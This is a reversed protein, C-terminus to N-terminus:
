DFHDWGHGAIPELHGGRDLRVGEDVAVFGGIARVEIAAESALARFADVNAAAVACLLEYDDGGGLVLAAADLDLLSSASDLVPDATLDEVDLRAGVVSATCLRHLDIALGDSIDIMASVLGREAAAVGFAVPPRPELYADACAQSAADLAAGASLARRGAAARGPWGSVFCLHGAAAGRREVPGTDASIEGVATINISVRDAVAVLDGGLISAEFHAAGNRLGGALRVVWDLETGRPLALAVLFGRPRAGMAGLDSANVAISRRGLQEPTIWEPRFHIGEHQSDTTLVTAGGIRVVAADDGPGVVINPDDASLAALIREVLELEGIDQLKTGGM